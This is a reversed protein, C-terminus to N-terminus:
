EHKHGLAWKTKKIVFDPNDRTQDLKDSVAEHEFASAPTSNNLLRKYYIEFQDVTKMDKVPDWVLTVRDDAVFTAHFNEVPMPLTTSGEELCLM